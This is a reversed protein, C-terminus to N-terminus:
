RNIKGIREQNRVIYSAKGARKVRNSIKEDDYANLKIKKGVYKEIMKEQEEKEEIKICYESNCRYNIMYINPYVRRLETVASCCIDTFESRSGFLFMTINEYEILESVVSIVKQLIIEKNEVKRHGIFCCKKVM